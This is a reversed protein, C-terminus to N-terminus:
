NLKFRESLTTLFERPTIIPIKHITELVLLDRDGTVLYQSQSDVACELLKNDKPDRCIDFSTQSEIFIAHVKIFELVAKKEAADILRDFKPRDLVFLLERFLQFSIALDFAKNEFLSYIKGSPSLPRRILSSILVNNDVTIRM